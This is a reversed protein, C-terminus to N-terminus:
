VYEIRGFHWFTLQHATEEETISCSFVKMLLEHLFDILCIAEDHNLRSMRCDTVRHRHKTEISPTVLLLIICPCPGRFLCPRSQDTNCSIICIDLAQENDPIGAVHRLAVHTYLCTVRLHNRDIFEFRDSWEKKTYPLSRSHNCSKFHFVHRISSRIVLRQLLPFPSSM